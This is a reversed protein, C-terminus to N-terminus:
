RGYFGLDSYGLWKSQRDWFFRYIYDGGNLGSVHCKLDLHGNDIAFTQYDIDNRSPHQKYNNTYTLWKNNDRDHGMIYQAPESGTSVIYLIHGSEEDCIEEISYYHEKAIKEDYIKKKDHHVVLYVDDSFWDKKIRIKIPEGIAEFVITNEKVLTAGKISKVSYFGAMAVSCSLCILVGLLLAVMRKLRM